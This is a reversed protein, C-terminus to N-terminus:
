RKVRTKGDPGIYQTGAPLAAWEQESSVQKPGGGSSKATPKFGDLSGHQKMYDSAAQKNQAILDLEDAMQNLRKVNDAVPLSPNYARELFRTGEKETFQAGLTSRLSNQIIREADQKLKTAQPMIISAGANPLISQVAGAVGGTAPVRDGATQGLDSAISRLENAQGTAAAIDPAQELATKGALKQGAANVEANAKYDTKRMWMNAEDEAKKRLYAELAGAQVPKGQDDVVAMQGKPDQYWFYPTGSIANYKIKGADDAAQLKAFAGAADPSSAAILGNGIRNGFNDGNITFANGIKDLIGQGQQAGSAQAPAEMNPQPNNLIGNPNQPVTPQSGAPVQMPAQPQAFGQSLIGNGGTFAQKILDGLTFNENM